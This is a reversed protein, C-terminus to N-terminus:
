LSEAIVVKMLEKWAALYTPKYQIAKAYCFMSRWPKRETARLTSGLGTYTHAWARLRTEKHVAGPFDRLFQHMIKIGNTYVKEHQSTIQGPWIRYLLTPTSVYGFAYRTSFRLWLDYDLGTVLSTSFTGMEEFCKRKVLTSGYPIFNSIFLRNTIFGSHLPTEVVGLSNGAQDMYRLPSYMVAVNNMREIAAVQLELKESIWADDDDLFAIYYGRALSIGLNVATGQGANSQKVIRVRPDKEFRKLVEQTNDISGDDIIILELNQYTQCLVSAVAQPLYAARNCTAIIVSVLPSNNVSGKM